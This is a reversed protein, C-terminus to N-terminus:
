ENSAGGNIVTATKTDIKINFGTSLPIQECTKNSDADIINCWTNNLKGSYNTITLGTNFGSFISNGIVSVNSPINIQKLSSNVAFAKEGITTLISDNKFIVKTLSTKKFAQSGITELRNPMILEGLENLSGQGSSFSGFGITLEPETKDADQFELGKIGSDAFAQSEISEVSSPISLKNDIKNGQFAQKKITKLESPENFVLKGKLAHDFAKQGISTVSSPIELDEISAEIFSQDGITQLGNGLTLEEINLNKFADDAINTVTNPITISTNKMSKFEIKDRVFAGLGIETLDNSNSFDIRKIKTNKFMYKGIKKINEPIVIDLGDTTSDSCDQFMSETNININSDNFNSFDIEELNSNDSFAGKGLNTLGSPLVVKTLATNSFASEGIKQVGPMDDKELTSLGTGSFAKDEIEKVQEGFYISKINEKNDEFAGSGISTIKVKKQTIDDYYWINKIVIDGSCDKDLDYKYGIVKAESKNNDKELVFCHSPTSYNSFIPTTAYGYDKTKLIIRFLEEETTNSDSSTGNYNPLYHIYKYLSGGEPYTSKVFNLKYNTIIIEEIGYQNIFRTCKDCENIGNNKDYVVFYRKEPNDTQGKLFAKLEEGTTEKELAEKYEKRIYHAAYQATVDNYSLRNEYEALLPLYNAFLVTFILLIAISVVLLEAMAFGKKNKLKKIM